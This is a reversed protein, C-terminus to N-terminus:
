YVLLASHNQVLAINRELNHLRHEVSGPKPHPFNICTDTLDYMVKLGVAAAVDVLALQTSQPYVGLTYVTLGVIM